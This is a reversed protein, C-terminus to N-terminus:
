KNEIPFHGDLIVAVFHIYDNKETGEPSQWHLARFYAMVREKWIMETKVFTIM